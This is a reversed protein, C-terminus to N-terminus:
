FKNAPVCIYKQLTSLIRGEWVVIHRLCARLHGGPIGGSKHIGQGKLTALGPSMKRIFPIHCFPTIGSGLSPLSRPKGTEHGRKREKTSPWLRVPTPPPTRVLCFGARILLQQCCPLDGQFYRKGILVKLHSHGTLCRSVSSGALGCGSESGSYCIM